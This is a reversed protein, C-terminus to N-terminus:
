ANKAVIPFASWGQFDSNSIKVVHDKTSNIATEGKSYAITNCGYCTQRPFPQRICALATHIIGFFRGSFTGLLRM